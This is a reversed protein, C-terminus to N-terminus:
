KKWTILSCVLTLLLIILLTVHIINYNLSLSNVTLFIPVIGILIYCFVAIGVGYSEKPDKLSNKGFFLAAIRGFGM